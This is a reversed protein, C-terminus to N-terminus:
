AANARLCREPGPPAAARVYTDPDYDHLGEIEITVVTRTAHTLIVRIHGNCYVARDIPHGPSNREVWRPAVVTLLIERETVHRQWMRRIAHLAMSLRARERLEDITMDRATIM